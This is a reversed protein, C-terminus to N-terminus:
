VGTLALEGEPDISLFAFQLGAINPVQVSFSYDAQADGHKDDIFVGVIIDTGTPSLPNDRNFHLNQLGVNKRPFDSQPVIKGSKAVYRVDKPLPLEQRTVHNKEQLTIVWVSQRVLALFREVFSDSPENKLDPFTDLRRFFGHLAAVAIRAQFINCFVRASHLLRDHLLTTDNDIFKPAARCDQMHIGFDEDRCALSCYSAVECHGCVKRGRRITHGCGECLSGAYTVKVIRTQSFAFPM